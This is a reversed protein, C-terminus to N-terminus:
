PENELQFIFARLVAPLPEDTEINVMGNGEVWSGEMDCRKFGTFLEVENGFLTDGTKLIQEM